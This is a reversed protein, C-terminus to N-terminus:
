SQCYCYSGYSWKTTAVNVPTNHLTQHVPTILQWCPMWDLASQNTYVSSESMYLVALDVTQVYSALWAINLLMLKGRPPLFPRALDVATMEDERYLVSTLNEWSADPSCHVYTDSCAFTKEQETSNSSHVSQVYSEVRRGLVKKWVDTWKAVTVKEMVDAVNEVTLTPDDASPSITKHSSCYVFVVLVLCWLVMLVCPPRVCTWFPTTPTTARM